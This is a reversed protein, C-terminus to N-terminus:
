GHSLSVSRGDSAFHHAPNPGSNADFDGGRGDVAFGVSLQRVEQRFEEFDFVPADFNDAALFAFFFVTSIDPRVSSSSSSTISVIGQLGRGRTSGREPAVPPLQVEVSREEEM